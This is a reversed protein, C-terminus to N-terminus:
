LSVSNRDIKKLILDLKKEDDKLMEVELMMRRRRIVRMFRDVMKTGYFESFWVDFHYNNKEGDLIEHGIITVNFGSHTKSITIFKELEGSDDVKKIYYKEGVNLDYSPNILLECDKDLIMSMTIKMTREQIKTLPKEDTKLEKTKVALRIFRYYLWRKFNFEMFKNQEPHSLIM